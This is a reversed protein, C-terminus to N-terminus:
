FRLESAFSLKLINLDCTLRGIFVTRLRRKGVNICTRYGLLTWDGAPLANTKGPRLVLNKITTPCSIFQTQFHCKTPIAFVPSFEILKPRGSFIWCMDNACCSGRPVVEVFTHDWFLVLFNMEDQDLSKMPVYISRRKYNSVLSLSKWPLSYLNDWSRLWSDFKCLLFHSKSDQTAWDQVSIAIIISIGFPSALAFWSIELNPARTEEDKQFRNAWPQCNQPIEVFNACFKATMSLQKMVLGTSIDDQKNWKHAPYM